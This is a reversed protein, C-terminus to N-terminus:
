RLKLTSLAVMALVISIIWFRVIIKPESWGRQEYHHHIPAMAFIRKKRMKYSGVQLIVSVAELVFIGGVLVVLLEHKTVLALMGLTGGLSLSGVDGMFISAPYANYWLFGLGAGIIATCMIVLEGAGAVHQIDLYASFEAHGALYAIVAYTAASTMVPGIALGDLGDTLNVANSMAVLVFVGFMPYLWGLWDPAGTWLEAFDIVAHKFFPLALVPEVWGMVHAAGLVGGGIAVQWFIKWRGALGATSQHMVKRWDDVFGIAGYGLMVILVMWVYPNDLRAWLLTALAIAALITVGGMTPTGVKNLRHSEPGDDRIIQDVKRQKLWGIYRPFFLYCFLLATILSWATRFSIYRFVNFGPVADSLPVLLHYIM